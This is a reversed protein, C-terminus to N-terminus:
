LYRIFKDKYPSVYVCAINHKLTYHMVCAYVWDHTLLSRQICRILKCKNRLPRHLFIPSVPYLRVKGKYCFSVKICYCIGDHSSAVRREPLGPSEQSYLHLLHPTLGRLRPHSPRGNRHPFVHRDTPVDRGLWGDGPDQRPHPLIYWSSVAQQLSLHSYLYPPLAVILLLKGVRTGQVRDVRGYPSNNPLEHHWQPLTGAYLKGTCM